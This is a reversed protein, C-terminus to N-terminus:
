LRRGFIKLNLSAVDGDYLLNRWAKPPSEGYKKVVEQERHLFADTNGAFKGFSSGRGIGSKPFASPLGNDASGLGFRAKAEQIYSSDSIMKDYLLFKEPNDICFLAMRKWVHLQERLHEEGRGMMLSAGWSYVDRLVFILLDFEGSHELSMQQPDNVSREEFSYLTCSGQGNGHYTQIPSQSKYTGVGKILCDNHHEVTGFHSAVWEILIHNGSRRLGVFGCRTV